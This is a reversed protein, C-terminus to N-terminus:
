SGFITEHWSESGMKEENGSPRARTCWIVTKKFYTQKAEVIVMQKIKLSRWKYVIYTLIGKSM